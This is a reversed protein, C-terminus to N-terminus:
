FVNEAIIANMAVILVKQKIKKTIFILMYKQFIKQIIVSCVFKQIKQQNTFLILRNLVKEKEETLNLKYLQFGNYKETLCSSIQRVINKTKKPEKMTLHRIKKKLELVKLFYNYKSLVNNIECCNNNLKQLDLIFEYKEEDLQDILNEDIIKEFDNKDCINTKMQKDFRIAYLIAEIFSNHETEEESKTKPILTKGFFKVKEAANEFEDIEAEYESSECM